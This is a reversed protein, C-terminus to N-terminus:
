LGGGNIAGFIIGLLIVAVIPVFKLIGTVNSFRVMGKAAVVNLIIFLAFLAGGVLFVYLTTLSGFNFAGPEGGLEAFCNLCAEGTFFLIAFTNVTYFILSYGLNCYRGLNYGCFRQAWGGFGDAKSKTKCTCIECFSLGISLILVIAVIWSLLIGTPNGHNNEFVSKNKFFIGIGVLTGFIMMVATFLGIKGATEQKVKPM